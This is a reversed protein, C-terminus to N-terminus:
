IPGGHADSWIEDCVSM